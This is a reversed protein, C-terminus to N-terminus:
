AVLTTLHVVPMHRNVLIKMRKILLSQVLNGSDQSPCLKIEVALDPTFFTSEVKEIRKEIEGVVEEKELAFWGHQEWDMNGLGRIKKEGPETKVKLEAKVSEETKMEPPPVEKKITESFKRRMENAVFRIQKSKHEKLVKQQNIM